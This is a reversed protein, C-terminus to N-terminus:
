RLYFPFAILYLITTVILTALMVPLGRKNWLVSTIPVRTRESLSAVVVNATSGIITGNGGLGAGFALAWWLPSINVGNAGLEQIVPIFAITIPVNDVVASLAAVLWLLGVGLALPNASSTRLVLNTAAHLVGSAELGGVLVFLATFFVLVSWEIRELTKRSDPRIWVLAVAAAGLAIFAPSVGLLKELFFMLIAVGLVALVKRATKWDDLAANPDISLITQTYGGYNGLTGLKPDSNIVNTCTSGSPCGNQVVSDLISVTSGSNSFAATDGWFLSNKITVTSNSNRMGITNGNFTVNILTASGSNNHMGGGGNPSSNGSFTVNTLIPNGRLNLLGGGMGNTPDTVSNYTFTVNTMTPNGSDNYTGGGFYLATNYIFSVNRLTPSGNLNYMGGGREGPSVGNANGDTISFGDLVATADTGSGSVTHYSNDANNGVTGIDGSLITVNTAPDRQNRATETGAFGGYLAVGSKLQFTAARDAGSTPKYTGAAVWIETCPSAGLASQLSTYADAWSTGNNAGAANAKVYCLTAAKAPTVFMMSGLLVALLGLVSLVPLLIRSVRLM